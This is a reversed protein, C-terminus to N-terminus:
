RLAPIFAASASRCALARQRPEAVLPPARRATPPFQREIRCERPRVAILTPRPAIAGQRAQRLSLDRVPVNAVAAGPREHDRAGFASNSRRRLVCRTVALGGILMIEIM